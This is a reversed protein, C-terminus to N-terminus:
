KACKDEDDHRQTSGGSDDITDCRLRFNACHHGTTGSANRRTAECGSGGGSSGFDEITAKCVGHARALSKPSVNDASQVPALRVIEAVRKDVAWPSAEYVKSADTEVMVRAYDDVAVGALRLDAKAALATTEEPHMGRLPRNLAEFISTM